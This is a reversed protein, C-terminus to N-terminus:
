SLKFYQIEILMLKQGGLLQQKQLVNASFFSFSILLCLKLIIKGIDM